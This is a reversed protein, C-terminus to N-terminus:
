LTSFIFLCRRIAKPNNTRKLRKNKFVKLLILERRL